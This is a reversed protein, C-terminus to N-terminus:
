LDLAGDLPRIPELNEHPACQSGGIVGAADEPHTAVAKDRSGEGRVGRGM